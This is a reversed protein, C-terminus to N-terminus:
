DAQIKGAIAINKIAELAVFVGAVSSNLMLIM